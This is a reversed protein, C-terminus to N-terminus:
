HDECIFTNPADPFNDRPIAELWRQREESYKKHPLRHIQMRFQLKWSLRYCLMQLGNKNQLYIFKLFLHLSKYFCLEKSLIYILYSIKNEPCKLCIIVTQKVYM